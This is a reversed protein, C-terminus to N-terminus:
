PHTGGPSGAHRDASQQNASVITALVRRIEAGRFPKSIIYSAGKLRADREDISAGWGSVLVVPLSPRIRHVQETLEWGNMGSGLGIDTLMVDFAPTDGTVSEIQHLADEGSGATTVDHESLLLKLMRVIDPEDDVALIRMRRHVTSEAPRPPPESAAQPANPFSLAFSTGQGPRSWVHIKGGHSEVIGLVLPLGLGTGREGKTTFFPEFLREQVEPSMGVGSDAVELWIRDGEARAALRISGGTPLADIANFILNTLMERLHQDSGRMTLGSETTVTLDIPRGEIQSADRWRPATLLAVDNLLATVDVPANEHEPKTRAFTLLRKVTEGGDAAAQGIVTLMEDAGRVDPGAKALAARTLDSYGLILSLSQNLDHAVGSALQGLARLREAQATQRQHAHEATMDRIIAAASVPHGEENLVPFISASVELVRGDKTVSVTEHQEGRLSCRVRRVVSTLEASRDPAAVLFSLPQGCAEDARYGYLAEAGRNWTTIRGDASMAIIADNSWEAIAALQAQAERLQQGEIAHAVATGLRSLRDKLLYDAAGDRMCAVAAEEGVTGTVVICPIAYGSERLLALARAASFQPMSYDSLIIDLSPDLSALFSEEDDVRQWDLAFGALTLETIVLEADDPDDEVLLLRLPTGIMPIPPV